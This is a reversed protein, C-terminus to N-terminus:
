GVQDAGPVHKRIYRLANDFSPLLRCRRGRLTELIGPDEFDKADRNLFCAEQPSEAELHSLVSAFVIADPVSLPYQKRVAMASRMIEAGLPVIAAVRVVRDVTRDLRQEEEEMSRILLGTVDAMADTQQQYSDTQALIGLETIVQRHLDRRRKHRGILAHHAEALCFAPAVLVVCSEGLGLVRECAAHQEQRLAIELLFNTEVYVIV